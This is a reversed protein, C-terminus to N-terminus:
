KGGPISGIKAVSAPDNGAYTEVLAPAHVINYDGPGYFALFDGAGGTVGNPAWSVGIRVPSSLEVMKTPNGALTQYTGAEGSQQGSAPQWRKALSEPGTFYQDAAGNDMQRTILYQNPQAVEVDGKITTIQEGPVAPRVDASYVQKVFNYEGNQALDSFLQSTQDGTLQESVPIEEPKLALAAPKAPAESQTDTKAETQDTSDANQEAQQQMATQMNRMALEGQLGGPIAALAYVSGELGGRIAVQSWDIKQGASRERQIESLAGGTIGFLAATTTTTLMPDAAIAPAFKGAGAGLAGAVGFVLVDSALAKADTATGVVKGLGAGADFSGNANEWTQRTLLGDIVRSGAGMAAGKLGLNWDQSGVATVLGKIAVGKAAGLTADALQAGVGDSPRAQDAAWTAGTAYWAGNGSMFMPVMKLATTAYHNVEDGIGESKRDATMLATARSALVEAGAADDSQVKQDIGTKFKQLDKLSSQGPNWVLDVLKGLYSRQSDDHEHQQIQSNLEQQVLSLKIVDQANDAAQPM